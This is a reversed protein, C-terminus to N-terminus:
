QAVEYLATAPAFAQWAFWFHQGAIIQRLQTDVLAGSTARGFTNWTSATQTDTITGDEDVEFTLLTGDALERRYLAATGISRSADIESRDLASVAGDQWFAVIAQNDQIDNIVGLRQLDDFAYAIPVSGVYGALVRATSPLRPDIEGSYLFPEGSDYGSYPNIGYRRSHGTERSLVEGEPYEEVFQAFGVVLSPLVTLQTENYVGVIGMGTFQQWWSQTQRDYMIMDSNRLNGSVGFDLVEGNVNRDFVISSNCLPCFTISIPQGGQETNVIEHWTLIALPYARAIGNVEVAIVPSQAQLWESASAVSEYIPNDIPPIGDPPPGGSLVEDYAISTNCFDTKEWYAVNFRVSQGNFPDACNANTTSQSLASLVGYHMLGMVILGVILFRKM